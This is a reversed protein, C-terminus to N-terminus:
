VRQEPENGEDASQYDIWGKALLEQYASRDGKAALDILHNLPPEIEHTIYSINKM